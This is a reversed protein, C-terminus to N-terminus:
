PRFSAVVRVVDGREFGTTAVSGRVTWQDPSDGRLEARVGAVGVNALSSGLIVTEVAATDIGADALATQAAPSGFADTVVAVRTTQARAVLSAARAAAGAWDAEGASPVLSELLRGLEPGAPWGSALLRAGPGASILSVRGSSGREGWREEIVGLAAHFRDPEVDTANMSLSADLLVVWKDTANNGLLPRALAFILLTAALLQLWLLPDRWPLSRRSPTTTGA